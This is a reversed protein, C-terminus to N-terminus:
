PPANPMDVEHGPIQLMRHLPCTTALAIEKAVPFVMLWVGIRLLRGGLFTEVAVGSDAVTTVWGVTAIM